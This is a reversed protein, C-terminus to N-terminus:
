HPLSAQGTGLEPLAPILLYILMPTLPSLHPSISVSWHFAEKEYVTKFIWMGTEPCCLKEYAKDTYDEHEEVCKFERFKESDEFTLTKNLIDM